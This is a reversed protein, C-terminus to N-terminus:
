QNDEINNQENFHRTLLRIVQQQGVLEAIREASVPNPPLRDPFTEQLRKLLGPPVEPFQDRKAM